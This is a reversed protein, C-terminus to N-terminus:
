ESPMFTGLDIVLNEETDIEWGGPLMNMQSLPITEKRYEFVETERNLFPVYRSGTGDSPPVKTDRIFDHIRTGWDLTKLALASMAMAPLTKYEWSIKHTTENTTASHWESIREVDVWQPRGLRDAELQEIHFGCPDTRQERDLTIRYNRVNDGTKWAILLAIKNAM